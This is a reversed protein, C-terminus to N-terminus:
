TQLHVNSSLPGLLGRSPILLFLLTRSPHTQSCRQLCQLRCSWSHWTGSFARLQLPVLLVGTARSGSAFSSTWLIPFLTLIGSLFQRAGARTQVLSRLCGVQKTILCALCPVPDLILSCTHLLRSYFVSFPSFIYSIFSFSVSLVALCAHCFWKQFFFSFCVWLFWPLFFCCGLFAFCFNIFFHVPPNSLPLM